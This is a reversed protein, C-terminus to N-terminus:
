GGIAAAVLKQSQAHDRKLLEGFAEGSLRSDVGKREFDGCAL